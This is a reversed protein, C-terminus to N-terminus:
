VPFSNCRLLSHPFQGPAYDRIIVHSLLHTRCPVSLVSFNAQCLDRMGSVSSVSFISLVLAVPKSIPKSITFRERFCHEGCDTLRYFVQCCISVFIRLPHLRSLLRLLLLPRNAYQERRIHFLLLRYKEDNIPKIVLQQALFAIRVM